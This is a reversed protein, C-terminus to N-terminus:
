DIQLQQLEVAFDLERRDYPWQKRKRLVFLITGVFAGIAGVTIAVKPNIVQGMHPIRDFFQKMTNTKENESLVLVKKKKDKKKHKATDDDDVLIDDLSDLDLDDDDDDALSDTSDSDQDASDSDAKGAKDTKGVKDKKDAGVSAVQNPGCSNGHGAAPRCSSYYKGFDKCVCGPQCCTTGKYNAGGCKGFAAGCKKGSSSYMSGVQMVTIPVGSLAQCSWPTRWQKADKPHIGPQCSTTCTAFEANKEFCTLTPDQCCKTVNCNEKVKSCGGRNLAQCSWPTHWQGKDDDHLGKKCSARCDAFEDNKEYCTLKKNQCCRTVNCNEKLASCKADVPQVWATLLFLSAVFMTAM